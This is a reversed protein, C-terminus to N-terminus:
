FLVQQYGGLQVGLYPYKLDVTLPDDGVTGTIINLSIKYTASPTTFQVFGDVLDDASTQLANGAFNRCVASIDIGATLGESGVLNVGLELKAGAIPYILDSAAKFVPSSSGLAVITQVSNDFSTVDTQSEAYGDAIEDENDDIWKLYAYLINKGTFISHEGGKASIKVKIGNRQGVQHFVTKTVSVKSDEYWLICAEVGYTAMRVATDAKMWTELQTFAADIGDGIATFEYVSEDGAYAMNGSGLENELRSLQINGEALIQNLQVVTGTAPDYISIKKVGTKM